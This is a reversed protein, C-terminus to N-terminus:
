LRSLTDGAWVAVLGFIVHLLINLAAKLIDGEKLLLLSEIAFTSYTTFGGLVGIFLFLRTESTFLSRTEALGYLLGILFCGIINVSFTGVPFAMAPNLRNMLGAVLFRGISGLLGGLGIYFLHPVGYYTM